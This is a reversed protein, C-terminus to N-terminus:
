PITDMSQSPDMSGNCRLMIWDPQQSTDDFYALASSRRSQDPHSRAFSRFRQGAVDICVSRLLLLYSPVDRRDLL